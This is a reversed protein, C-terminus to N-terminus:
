WIVVAGKYVGKLSQGQFGFDLLHTITSKAVLGRVCGYGHDQTAPQGVENGLKWWWKQM